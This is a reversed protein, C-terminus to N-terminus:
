EIFVTTMTIDILPNLVLGLTSSVIVCLAIGYELNTKPWTFIAGSPYQAVYDSTESSEKTIFIKIVRLYYYLSVVSTLLGVYVLAYLGKKWGCWFLYLKTFFGAFPPIGALSLFCITLCISIAPDRFYLGRYDRIQDTGTRLGLLIACAFAGVNTFLYAVMYLIMPTYGDAYLIGILLYGAQSISSYALLRKLSTQTLAILNGLSMTLIALISLIPGWTSALFPFISSCIRAALALSAAKSVVSFFAVVPTPSGEYVDPAWQHFPVVGLKFGVAVLSCVLALSLPAMNQTTDSLATVIEPFQLHGGSLGYLWSFGYALLASSAGGMLLYKIAAENSRIDLKSYGALLYSSLSLCELAVFLTLLDNAGCLFLSGLTAVLIFILFEGIPMGSRRMYEDAIIVCLTVSCTILCRFAITFNNIAYSNWIIISIPHLWQFVLVGSALILGGIAIKALFDSNPNVLDIIIILLATLLILIEPCLAVLTVNNSLFENM